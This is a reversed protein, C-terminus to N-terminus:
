RLELLRKVERITEPHKPASHGSPVIVESVVDDLHSSWYEVVGDSSQELPGDRGRDAIISHLSVGAVVPLDPLIQLTPQRPSLSGVSDLKGEGLEAYSETFAGPNATSVRQYFEQFPGPPKFLHKGLNGVPNDALRSGRHPVAIFIVRKVSPEPKWLFADRLTSRDAPTLSLSELPRTFAAKWFADGPDTILGRAVIGGMSHTILTTSRSAPDDLGPDLESRLDRYQARLIRGAYLAPASTNYLFHWIQYRRNIEPVARLENTMVAWTLPSDLLGHIMIIPEKHPDYPELLYLQPERKPTPTLLDAFESRSLDGARELLAALAVSHDAALERRRGALVIHEHYLSCLLEIKVERVGGQGPRSHIVATIGRTIAEPPYYREIAERGLNERVALLPAGMGQRRHHELRKVQYYDAPSIEDFYAPLYRSTGSDDFRVRFRDSSSSGTGPELLGRSETGKQLRWDSVFRALALASDGENPTVLSDELLAHLSPKKQIISAHNFDRSRVLSAPTLACSSLVLASLILSAVFIIKMGIDVFEADIRICTPVPVM